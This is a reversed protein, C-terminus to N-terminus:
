RAPAYGALQLVIADNLPLESVMWRHVRPHYLCLATWLALLAGLLALLPRRVAWWPRTGPPVRLPEASFAAIADNM